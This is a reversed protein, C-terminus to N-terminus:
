IKQILNLCIENDTYGLSKLGNFIRDFSGGGDLIEVWDGIQDSIYQSREEQGESKVNEAHLVLSFCLCLFLYYLFKM